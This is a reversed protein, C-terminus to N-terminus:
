APRPDDRLIATLLFRLADADSPYGHAAVDNALCHHEDLTLPGRVVVPVRALDPIHRLAHLLAVARGDILAADTLIVAPRLEDLLALARRATDAALPWYGAARVTAASTAQRAPHSSVVLVLHHSV